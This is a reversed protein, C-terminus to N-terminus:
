PRSKIVFDNRNCAKRGTYDEDCWFIVQNSPSDKTLRVAKASRSTSLFLDFLQNAPRVDVMFGDPYQNLASSKASITVIVRDSYHEVNSVYANRDDAYALIGTFALVLLLLLKKMNNCTLITVVQLIAINPVAMMLNVMRAIKLFQILSIRVAEKM